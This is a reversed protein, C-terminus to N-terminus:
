PNLFITLINCIFGLPLYNIMAYQMSMYVLLSKLEKTNNYEVIYVVQHVSM